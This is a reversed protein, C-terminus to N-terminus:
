GSMDGTARLAHHSCLQPTEVHLVQVCEEGAMRREVRECGLLQALMAAAVRLACSARALDDQDLVARRGGPQPHDEGPEISRTWSPSTIWTSSGPSHKPWGDSSVPIAGANVTRARSGDLQASSGASAASRRSPM